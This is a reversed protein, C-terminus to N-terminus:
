YKEAFIVTGIAPKFKYQGAWKTPAGIERREYNFSNETFLHSDVDTVALSLFSPCDVIKKEPNQVISTWEQDYQKRYQTCLVLDGPSLPKTFFENDRKYTVFLGTFLLSYPQIENGITFLPFAYDRAFEESLVDPRTLDNRLSKTKLFSRACKGPINPYTIHLRNHPLLSIHKFPLVGNYSREDNSIVGTSMFAPVWTLTNSIKMNIQKPKVARFIFVKAVDNYRDDRMPIYNYIKGSKNGMNGSSPEFYPLRYIFDSYLIRIGELPVDELSKHRRLVEYITDHIFQRESKGSIMAIGNSFKGQNNLLYDDTTQIEIYRPDTAECYAINLEQNMVVRGISSDYTRTVVDFHCPNPLSVNSGVLELYEPSIFQLPLPRFLLTNKNHKFINKRTCQPPYNITGEKLEYDEDCACTMSDFTTWNPKLVGNQCGIFRDCDSMLTNKTFFNENSCLCVFAYGNRDESRSLIWRGGNKQTCKRDNRNDNVPLCYGEGEENKHITIKNNDIDFIDVDFHVCESLIESCNSCGFLSDNLKCKVLTTTSCEEDGDVNKPIQKRDKKDEKLYIGNNEYLKLDETVWRGGNLIYQLCKEALILCMALCTIIVYAKNLM